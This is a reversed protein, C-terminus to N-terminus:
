FRGNKNLFLPRGNESTRIKYTFVFNLIYYMDKSKSFQSTYGEINDSFTYRGGLEIGYNYTGSYSLSVGLGAPIVLTFGKSGTMRPELKDNPKVSYNLGGIGTFVYVDLLPLFRKPFPYSSGRMLKFSNDGKNRKIYYEGIATPEFFLTRSEYDRKENSGRVDTSHFSGFNLNLRASVSSTIRYRVSSSISLRTDRFSIDKLGLANDGKSFGGIDGFFQTTGLGASVEYRRIKWIQASASTLLFSLFIILAVTKRMSTLNLNYM